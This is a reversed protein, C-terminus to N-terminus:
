SHYSTMLSSKRWFFFFHCFHESFKEYQKFAVKYDSVASIIVQMQFFSISILASTHLSM